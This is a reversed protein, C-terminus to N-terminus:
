VAGGPMAFAAAMFYVSACGISARVPTPASWSWKAAFEAFYWELSVGVRRNGRIICGQYRKVTDPKADLVSRAELMYSV